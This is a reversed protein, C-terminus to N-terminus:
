IGFYKKDLSRLQIAEAVHQPEISESHALDAVTRAVRLVRDYGRASLNMKEFATKLLRLSADGVACFERIESRTMAANCASASGMRRVALSRADEVRARIQASSESKEERTLEDFSLAPLEVQIDIRDLLPGSIKSLYKKIDERRCTCERIGSGYYGCRCPNMACVLMFRSPYTVRGAARTITVQGDELPQRMSETVAKNFEPLEDLFLVGGSALSIEGPMPIAGGGVLAPASMTHHPSRFPRVTVLGSESDLTGSASHIKTVEVSEEFSMRPMITPLRKALMSKGTGPPGVMLINHGGAAAIEMARRAREQGKIESFDAGDSPPASFDPETFEAAAITKVGTLRRFCSDLNDVPYVSVGGVAAAEAVNRAPVFVKKFGADRACLTRSLVGRIPRLEGSFSLEGILVSDSLDTDPPLIGCAKWIAAIMALDLSSGEKRRDAPALNIIIEAEPLTRASNESAAALRRKSERVANDPLGVIEFYPLNESFSCEVTVIYGDIGFLGTSYATTLM